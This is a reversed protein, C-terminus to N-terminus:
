PLRTIIQQALHDFAASDDTDLNPCPGSACDWDHWLLPLAPPAISGLIV